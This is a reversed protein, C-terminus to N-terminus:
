QDLTFYQQRVDIQGPGGTAVVGSRVASIREAGSPTHYTGSAVTTGDVSAAIRSGVTVTVTLDFWQGVPVAFGPGILQQDAGTYSGVVLHGLGDGKYRSVGLVYGKGGYIRYNDARLLSVYGSASMLLFRGGFSHTQGATWPAPAHYVMRAYGLPGEALSQWYASSKSISGSYSNSKLPGPASPTYVAAHAAAPAMLAILVGVGVTMARIRGV